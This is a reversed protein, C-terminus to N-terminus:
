EIVVTLTIKGTQVHGGALVRQNDSQLQWKGMILSAAIYVTHAVVRTSLFGESYKPLM